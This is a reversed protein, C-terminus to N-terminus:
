QQLACWIDFQQMPDSHAESESLGAGPLSYDGRMSAPDLTNPLRDNAGQRHRRLADLMESIHM